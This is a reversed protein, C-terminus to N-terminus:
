PEVLNMLQQIQKVNDVLNIPVSTDEFTAIEDVMNGFNYIILLTLWGDFVLTSGSGLEVTLNVVIMSKLEDIISVTTEVDVRLPTYMSILTLWKSISGPKVLSILSYM